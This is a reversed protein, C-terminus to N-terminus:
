PVGTASYPYKFHSWGDHSLTKVYCVASAALSAIILIAVGGKGNDVAVASVNKQNKIYYAFGFFGLGNKYPSAETTHFGTRRVETYLWQGVPERPKANGFIQDPSRALYPLDSNSKFHLKAGM